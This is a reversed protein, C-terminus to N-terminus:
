SFPIPDLGADGARILLPTQTKLRLRLVARNYSKRFM